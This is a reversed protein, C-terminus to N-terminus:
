LIVIFHWFLYFKSIKRNITNRFRLIQLIRPYKDLFRIRNIFNETLMLSVVTFFSSLTMAGVLINFVCVIKDPTLSDLFEAYKNYATEPIDRINSERIEEIEQKFHEYMQMAKEWSKEWADKFNKLIKM